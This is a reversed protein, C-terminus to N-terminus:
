APRNVWLPSRSKSNKHVLEGVHQIIAGVVQSQSLIPEVIKEPM